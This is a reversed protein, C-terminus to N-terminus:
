QAVQLALRTKGTGGPGTLTVLPTDPDQAMPKLREIEPERGFFRTLQRPLYGTPDSPAPVAPLAPLAGGGQIPQRAPRVDTDLREIFARIERSPATAMESALHQEFQRYQERAAETEGQFALLPILAQRGEERLPDAAVARRAWQMAQPYDGTQELCHILESLVRQHAEALRQREALVWEDFFGPLLEGRYVEAAATLAATDADPRGAGCLREFEAVDTTIAEPNLRVVRRDAVIVAGPAIGPPELQHRLSALATRLSRQGLSPESEPWFLEILAARPHTCDLYFALYALLAATKRTRFRTLVRDRGVVRLGCLLEIRWPEYLLSM